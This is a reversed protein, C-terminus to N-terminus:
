GINCILIVRMNLVFNGGGGLFTFLIVVADHCGLFKQLILVFPSHGVDTIEVM